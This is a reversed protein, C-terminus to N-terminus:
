RLRYSVGVNLSTDVDDLDNSKSALAAVKLDLQNNLYYYFISSLTNTTNDNGGDEGSKSYDLKWSNVWDVKDTIERTWSMENTFQYGTDDDGFITSLSAVDSFQTQNNIPRHYEAELDFSPDGGDSGDYNSLVAGLGARVLWGSKRTTIFEDVLVDRAKIVGAANLSGNLVGSAVLAQEIDTIWKQEYNGLRYKSSYENERSIIQAVSVYTAKSPKARLAGQAMLAEVLRIAKAMPTVNVVRGYGLGIGIKFFPDEADKKLGLDGSGYWFAGKSGPRFYTDANVGASASYNDQSDAGATSSRSVSGKANANVSLNRHASSFVRDYELSLAANYAAQDHGNGNTTSFSGDIYADEYASTAETYDYLTVDAVATGAAAMM